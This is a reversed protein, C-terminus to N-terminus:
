QTPVLLNFVSYAYRGAKNIKRPKMGKMFNRLRKRGSETKTLEILFSLAFTKSTQQVARNHKILGGTTEWVIKVPDCFSFLPTFTLMRIIKQIKM